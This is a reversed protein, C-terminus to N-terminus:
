VRDLARRWEPRADAVRRKCLWFVIAVGVLSLASYCSLVSLPRYRPMLDTLALTLGWIVAAAGGSSASVTNVFAWRSTEKAIRPAGQYLLLGLVIFLAGICVGIMYALGGSSARRLSLSMAVSRLASLADDFFVGEHRNYAVLYIRDLSGVPRSEEVAAIITSFGQAFQLFAPSDGGAHSTSGIAAFGISTLSRGLSDSAVNVLRRVGANLNGVLRRRFDSHSHGGIVVLPDFLPLAGLYKVGQIAGFAGSRYAGWVYPVIKDGRCEVRPEGRQFCLVAERSQYLAELLHRVLDRYQGSDSAAATLASALLPNSLVVDSTPTHIPDFYLSIAALDFGLDNRTEAPRLVNGVMAHIEVTTGARTLVEGIRTEGSALISSKTPSTLMVVLWPLTLLAAIIFAAAVRRTRSLPDVGVM